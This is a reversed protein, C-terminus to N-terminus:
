DRSHKQQTRCELQNQLTYIGLCVFPVAVTLGAALLISM